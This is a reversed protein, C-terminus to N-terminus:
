HTGLIVLFVNLSLGRLFFTVAIKRAANPVAHLTFDLSLELHHCVSKQGQLIVAIAVNINFNHLLMYELISMKQFFQWFSIKKAFIGSFWNKQSKRLFYANQATHQKVIDLYISLYDVSAELSETTGGVQKWIRPDYIRVLMGCSLGPRRVTWHIGRKIM